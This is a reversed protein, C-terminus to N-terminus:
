VCVKGVTLVECCHRRFCIGVKKDGKSGTLGEAQQQKGHQQGEEGLEAHQQQQQQEDEDEEAVAHLRGIMGSGNSSSNEDGEAEQLQQVLQCCDQQLGVLVGRAAALLQSNRALSSTARMLQPRELVPGMAQLAQLLLVSCLLLLV